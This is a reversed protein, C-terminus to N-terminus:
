APQVVDALARLLRAGDGRYCSGHMATVLAPETCALREIVARTNPGHAYHDMAGLLAQSPGLIDGETVPPDGAGPQTFLDGALLTRTTSEFMFGNDWGHPVHPADIWTVSRAGLSRSEGDALVMPERDTLNAISLMAQLRGCLPRADPAAAMLEALAGCEDAEVHSFSVWRLRELPMVRAIAEAVGPFLARMGTHFLLPEDDVILFQNFSFGGPMTPVPVPTSIRFVRDGVEDITTM